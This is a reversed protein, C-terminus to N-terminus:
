VMCQGRGLDVICVDSEPAACTVFLQTGDPSLTLGSPPKPLTLTAAVQRTPTSLFLVQNATGCAVFLTKGDKTSALATPSLYTAASAVAQGVLLVALLVVLSDTLLKM